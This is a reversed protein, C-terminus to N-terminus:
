VVKIKLVQDLETGLFGSYRRKKVIFDTKEPRLEEVMEAGKTGLIAHEPWKIVV